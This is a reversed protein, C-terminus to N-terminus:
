RRTYRTQVTGRPSWMTYSLTTPRGPSFLVGFREAVDILQGAFYLPNFLDFVEIPVPPRARHTQTRHPPTRGAQARGAQTRAGHRASATATLKAIVARAEPDGQVAWASVVHLKVTDAIVSDSSGTPILQVGRAHHVRLGGATDSLMVDWSDSDPTGALLVPGLGPRAGLACPVNGARLVAHIRQLRESM